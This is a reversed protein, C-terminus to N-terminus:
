KGFPKLALNVNIKVNSGVKSSVLKPIVIGYDAVNLVFDSKAATIAGKSVTVEGKSSVDKTVGHMTMKGSVTVPFTGDKKLNEASWNAIKGKFTTKPYQDSAVYNENFHEEMLARKFHFGKMLVAFEVNGSAADVVSNVQSNKATIDEPSGTATADFNIVGDKTFYKQAQTQTALGAILMVGLLIKKM